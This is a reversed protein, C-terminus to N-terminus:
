CDRLMTACGQLAEQLLRASYSLPLELALCAGSAAKFAERSFGLVHMALHM